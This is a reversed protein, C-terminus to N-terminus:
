ILGSKPRRTKDCKPCEVIQKEFAIMREKSWQTQLVGGDVITLLAHERLISDALRFFHYMNDHAMRFKHPRTTAKEESRDLIGTFAHNGLTASRTLVETPVLHRSRPSFVMPTASRDRTRIRGRGKSRSRCRYKYRCCLAYASLPLSVAETASCDTSSSHLTLHTVDAPQASPPSDVSDYPRTPQGLSDYSTAYIAIDRLDSVDDGEDEPYLTLITGTQCVV